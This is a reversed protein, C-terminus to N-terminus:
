EEEKDEVIGNCVPCTDFEIGDIEKNNTETWDGTWDCETCKMSSIKSSKDFPWKATEVFNGNPSPWKTPDLEIHKDTSDGFPWAATTSLPKHEVVVKEPMSEKITEGNFEEGTDENTLVLPGQFEFETDDNSWGLEEVGEYSNEEWAEEFAELDEETCNRGAENDAWCGDDLNDLEWCEDNDLCGLEYGHKNILEEDTLPREDSQVYFTGWRYGEERIIVKDDKVWIQREISSKKWYTSLKWTAM